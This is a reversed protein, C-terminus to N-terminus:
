RREAEWHGACEGASSRGHWRGAGANASLRGTGDARQRGRSIGVAVAGNPTVTGALNISADGIYVVRGDRVAVEYRYARDCTGKDTIVLVSWKGDFVAAAAPRPMLAVLPGILAALILVRRLMAVGTKASRTGIGLLRAKHSVGSLAFTGRRNDIQRAEAM